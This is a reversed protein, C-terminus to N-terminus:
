NRYSLTVFVIIARHGILFLLLSYWLSGTGHEIETHQHHRHKMKPGVSGVHPLVLMGWQLGPREFKEASKEVSKENARETVSRYQQQGVL